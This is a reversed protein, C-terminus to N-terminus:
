KKFVLSFNNAPMPVIVPAGFGNQNALSIVKEMDRVGWAPNRAKLSADFSENSPATHAGGRRYPGYLFLVGGSGLTRGANEMLAVTVDFPSIHILNIALVAVLPKELHPLAWDDTLVDFRMPSLLSPCATHARWAAISELHSEDIDTPQWDIDPFHPAFFSAHEGTGSAVELLSGERPLHERLVDLIYDRNRATAPAHLRADDGAAGPNFFRSM